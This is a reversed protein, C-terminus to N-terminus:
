RKGNAVKKSIKRNRTNIKTAQNSEMTGEEYYKMATVVNKHGSCQMADGLSIGDMGCQTLFGRRLSHGSYHKPNLGIMEVRDKIIKSVTKESMKEPKVIGQPSLGRFLFGDNIDASKIWRKLYESHPKRLIKESGKGLQDTKSRSLKYKFGGPVLYLDDFKAEVVEIGRRGGTYFAFSLIAIARIDNLSHDGRFTKIMKNLTRVTIAKAQKTSIGQQAEYRRAGLFLAKIRPTRFNNEFGKMTHYKVIADVKRRLTTVKYRGKERKVGLNILALEIDPTLGQVHKEVFQEVVEPAVPYSEKIKLAVGAWAWFYKVDGGYAKETNPAPAGQLLKEIDLIDTM